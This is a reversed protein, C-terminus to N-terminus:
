ETPQGGNDNGEPAKNNAEAKFKEVEALCENYSKGPEPVYDLGFASAKDILADWMENSVPSNAEIFAQIKENLKKAGINANFTIGLAIAQAKLEDLNLNEDKGLKNGAPLADGRLWNDSFRKLMKNKFSNSQEMLALVNDKALNLEDMLQSLGYGRRIYVLIKDIM